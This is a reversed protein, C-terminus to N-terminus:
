IDIETLIPWRPSNRPVPTLTNSFGYLPKGLKIPRDFENKRVWEVDRIHDFFVKRQSLTRDFRHNATKTKAVGLISSMGDFIIIFDGKGIGDCFYDFQRTWGTGLENMVRERIVSWDDIVIGPVDLGILNNKVAYNWLKTKNKGNYSLHMIFFHDRNNNLLLKGFEVCM